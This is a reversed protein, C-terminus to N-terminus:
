GAGGHVQAVRRAFHVTSIAAEKSMTHPVDTLSTVLAAEGCGKTGRLPGIDMAKSLEFRYTLFTCVEDFSHHASPM